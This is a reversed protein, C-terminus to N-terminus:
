TLLLSLLYTSIIIMIIMFCHVVASSQEHMSSADLQFTVSSGALTENEILVGITSREFMYNSYGEPFSMFGRIKSAEV